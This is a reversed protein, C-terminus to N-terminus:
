NGNNDSHKHHQGGGGGSSGRRRKASKTQIVPANGETSGSDELISINDAGKSTSRHSPIPLPKAALQDRESIALEIELRSCVKRLEHITAHLSEQTGADKKKQEWATYANLCNESSEKLRQHINQDESM